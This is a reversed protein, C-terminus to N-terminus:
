VGLPAEWSDSKKRNELAWLPQLNTFNFCELQQGRSTALEPFAACPKKHGIHWGKPGYNEWSMGPQFLSELHQRLGVLNTGLLETSNKTCKGNLFDGIRRRLNHLARYHPQTALRKKTHRTWKERLKDPNKAWYIARSEKRKERNQNLCWKRNILRTQDEMIVRRTGSIGNKLDTIVSELLKLDNRIRTANRLGLLRLRSQEASRM